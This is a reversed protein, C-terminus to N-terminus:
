YLMENEKNMRKDVDTMKKLGEWMTATGIFFIIVEWYWKGILNLQVEPHPLIRNILEFAAIMTILFIGVCFGIVLLFLLTTRLFKIIGALGILFNGIFNKM